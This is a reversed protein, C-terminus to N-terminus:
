PTVQLQRMVQNTDLGSVDRFRIQLMRIGAFKDNSKFGISRLLAQVSSQTANNNLRVTLAAGKTGGAVTGILTTGFFVSRGRRVIGDAKEVSLSDKVSQGSVQLVSGTFVLRPTDIDAITASSDVAIMKKSALHYILPQPDLVIVSPDDVPLVRVQFLQSVSVTGNSVTVTITALGCMNDAPTIVLSRNAGAGSILIKANPILATDSSTAVVTLENVDGIPDTLTFDLAETSHDEDITQQPITTITPRDPDFMGWLEVGNVGDNAAFFLRGDVNTLSSPSSSGLGAFIDKLQRTGVATGDSTWLEIGDIGNNAVFYLIGNVNTLADPLSSGPGANIDKVQVTGGATGDSQWLEVGNVGDTATFYLTGNVNTLSGPASDGAGVFIDKVQVTGTGDSKWLERGTIGNNATFYLTGNVNMLNSPSSGVAGPYIDDVQVTGAATGDSKWLEVGSVGDIATFYLTGNVNTLSSPSSGEKGPNIDKVQFTGAATGDSRWLERGDRNIATFFLIGNVDILSDPFSGQPGSVIETVRVTGSATGDSKWLERGKDRDIATFFLTGNVNTLSDPFSGGPGTVIDKM